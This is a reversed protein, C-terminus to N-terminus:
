RNPGPAAKESDTIIVFPCHFYHHLRGEQDVTLVPFGEDSNVSVEVPNRHSITEDPTFVKVAKVGTYTVM